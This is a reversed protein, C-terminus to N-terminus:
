CASLTYLFIRLKGGNNPSYLMITSCGYPMHSMLGSVGCQGKAIESGCTLEARSIEWAKDTFTHIFSSCHLKVFHDDWATKGILSSQDKLGGQRIPVYERLKTLLGIHSVICAIFYYGSVTLWYCILRRSDQLIRDDRWPIPFSHCWWHLTWQESEALHPLPVSQWQPQLTFCFSIHLTASM